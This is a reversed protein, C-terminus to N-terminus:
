GENDGIGFGNGFTHHRLLGQFSARQPQTRTFAHVDAEHLLRQQLKTELARIVDILRTLERHTARQDIDEGVGTLVGVADIEETRLHVADASELDLALKAPLAHVLYGQHGFEAALMLVGDGQGGEQGRVRHQHGLVQGVHGFADPLYPLFAERLLCKQFVSHRTLTLFGLLTLPQLLFQHEDRCGGELLVKRGEPAHFERGALALFCGDGRLGRCKRFPPARPSAEAKGEGGSRLGNEM